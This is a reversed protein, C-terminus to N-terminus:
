ISSHRPLFLIKINGTASNVATTAQTLRVVLDDYVPRTVNISAFNFLVEREVTNDVQDVGNGGLLDFDGQFIWLDSDEKPETGGHNCDIDVMLGYWGVLPGHVIGTTSGNLTFDAITGDAADALFTLEVVRITTDMSTSSYIMDSAVSFAGAGFATSAFVFCSLFVLLNIFKKM